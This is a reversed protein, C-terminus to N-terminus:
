VEYEVIFNNSVKAEIQDNIEFDLEFLDVNFYVKNVTKGTIEVEIIHINRKLTIIKSINTIVGSIEKPTENILSNIHIILDNSKIINELLNYIFITAFISLDITGLIIFLTRTKLKAIIMFVILVPVVVFLPYISNNLGKKKKNRYMDIMEHSYLKM